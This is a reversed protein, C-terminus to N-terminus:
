LNFLTAADETTDMKEPTNVAPYWLEAYLPLDDIVFTYEDGRNSKVWTLLYDLARPQHDEPSQGGTWGDNMWDRMRNANQPTVKGYQGVHKLCENFVFIAPLLNYGSGDITFDKANLYKQTYDLALTERPDGHPFEAIREQLRKEIAVMVNEAYLDNDYQM